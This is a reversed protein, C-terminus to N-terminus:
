TMDFAATQALTATAGPSISAPRQQARKQRLYPLQPPAPPHSHRMPPEQVQQPPLTRSIITSCAGAHNFSQLDTMASKMFICGTCTNENPVRSNERRNNSLSSVPARCRWRGESRSTVDHSNFTSTGHLSLTVLCANSVQVWILLVRKRLLPLRERRSAAHRALILLQHWEQLHRCSLVPVNTTTSGQLRSLMNELLSWPQEDTHVHM